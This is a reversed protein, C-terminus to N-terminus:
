LSEELEEAVETFQEMAVRLNEVIESAIIDPPPLADVDELSDDKLWFIDLNTKDRLLTSLTLPRSVNPRSEHALTEPETTHSAALSIIRIVFPRMRRIQCTSPLYQCAIILRLAAPDSSITTEM